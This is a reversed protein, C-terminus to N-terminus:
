CGREEMLKRENILIADDRKEIGTGTSGQASAGEQGSGAADDLVRLGRERDYAFTFRGWRHEGREDLPMPLAGRLWTTEQWSPQGYNELHFIMDEFADGRLPWAPLTVACRAVARALDDGIGTTMDVYEDGHEGLWPLSLLRGDREQVLIVELSDQIDRVQAVGFLEEHAAVTNWGWASVDSSPEDVLFTEARNRKDALVARRKDEADAWVDVWGAPAPADDDYTARVLRPVDDPSAITVTGDPGIRDTAFLAAMTRLLLARGYVLECGRNFEPPPGSTIAGPQRDGTDIGTLLLLPEALGAPRVRGAHRHVRGIRQILLDMPAVDSYMRDFDIDLSQEIVQTAVVVLRHPRQADRGLRALLERELHRRDDATFRSHLLMIESDEFEGSEKLATYTEQARAVTNRVVAVCGGRATDAVVALVVGDLEDGIVQVKTVSSRGSPQPLRIEPAGSSSAIVSPYGTVSAVADVEGGARAAPQEDPGQAMPRGARYARLLSQRRQVPLTASLAVVPVGLAGCWTMARELYVGMYEDAAHIEDLIVVKGSLGVHRLMGHKTKLASMLFQDITGVTFDALLAKKSDRLWWHAEIEPSQRDGASEDWIGRVDGARKGMLARYEENHQAKSHSLILSARERSGVARGLWSLVRGLMADSTACTPLAVTVGGAGFKEALIEAAALAAETKGEGTPAEILMLPPEDVSAALEAAAAQVPRPAADDPLSFRHRFLDSLGGAGATEGGYGSTPTWPAPLDLSALGREIRLGDDNVWQGDRFPFLYENSAIWDSVIVFGTLVVQVPLPLGRERLEDWMAGTSGALEAAHDLYRGRVENWQKPERSLQTLCACLDPEDPYTGHHGGIITAWSDAVDEDFDLEDILWDTLALAGVIGHPMLKAEAGLSMRRLGADAAAAARVESKAQFAVSAKGVDHAAVLFVAVSRALRPGGVAREVVRRTQAPLWNDWLYGAVGAADALHRYLPMWDGTLPNTKAWLARDVSM